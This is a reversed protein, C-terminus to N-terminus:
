NSSTVTYLQNLVEETIVSDEGSLQHIGEYLGTDFLGLRDLRCMDADDQKDNGNRRMTMKYFAIFAPSAIQITGNPTDVLRSSDFVEDTLPYTHTRGELSPVTSHNPPMDRLYPYTTCMEGLVDVPVGREIDAEVIPNSFRFGHHVREATVLKADLGFDCMARHILIQKELGDAMGTHRTVIDVDTPVREIEGTLEKQYLSVAGGSIIFWDSRPMLPDLVQSMVDITHFLEGRSVEHREANSAFVPCYQVAEANCACGNHGCYSSHEPKM